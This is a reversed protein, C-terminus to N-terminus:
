MHVKELYPDANRLQKIIAAAVERPPINEGQSKLM